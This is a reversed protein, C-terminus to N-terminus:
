RCMHRLLAFLCRTGARVAQLREFYEADVDGTVYEGSFCSTDFMKIAPNISKIAEVLDELDQYLVWECTLKDAIEAEDRNHAILEEKSPM